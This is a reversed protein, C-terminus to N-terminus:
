DHAPRELRGLAVLAQDRREAALKGLLVDDGRREDGALPDGGDEVAVVRRSFRQPRGVAELYEQLLCPQRHIAGQELTLELVGVLLLRASVSAGRRPSTIGFTSTTSSEDAIRPRMADM